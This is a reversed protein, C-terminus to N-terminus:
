FLPLCVKRFVIRVLRICLLKLPVIPDMGQAVIPISVGFQRPFLKPKVEATLSFAAAKAVLCRLTGGIAIHSVGGHPKSFALLSAGYLIPIVRQPVEGSWMKNCLRTIVSLLQAGSEGSPKSILDKVQQLLLLDIGGASGMPFSM